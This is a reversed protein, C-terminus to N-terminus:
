FIEVNDQKVQITTAFLDSERNENYLGKFNIKMQQQSLNESLFTGSVLIPVTKGYKITSNQDKIISFKPHYPLGHVYWLADIYYKNGLVITNYGLHETGYIIQGNPKAFVSIGKISFAEPGYDPDLTILYEALHPFVMMGHGEENRYKTIY